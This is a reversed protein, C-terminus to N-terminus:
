WAGRARLQQLRALYRRFDKGPQEIGPLYVDTIRTVTFRMAAARAEVPLLAREAAALPRLEEYGAVLAAILSDDFAGVLGSRLSASRPTFCWANVCVALDYILAGTSAQEFDILSAAGAPTFLVNDRFLDGHIIGRPAAAREAARAELWEIEDAIATIAPELEPDASGRLGAFRECIAAFTYIGDRRHAPGLELGARHLRALAAGVAGADAPTVEGLERHRGDVWPFLSAFRRGFAVYPRGDAVARLPLPTAVGRAALAAVLEAEYAVDAEAKGENIRLFFRGVATAVEFNSNITGAPVERWGTLPGVGFAAALARVEADDLQTFRAV